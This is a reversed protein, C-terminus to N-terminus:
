ASLARGERPPFAPHVVHNEDRLEDARGANSYLRYALVLTPLTQYFRFGMMRPLPRGTEVLFAVVAAHLQVLAIYSAQDMEDAAIEEAQNHAEAIITKFQDIQDRSIFTYNGLISASNALSLYIISNKVLAGGVTQPVYGFADNRVDRLDLLGIGAQVALEFCKDLPPGAVDHWLWSEAHAILDGCATRFDARVHPDTSNSSPVALLRTISQTIFGAGETADLKFM